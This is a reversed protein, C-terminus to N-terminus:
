TSAPPLALKRRVLGEYLRWPLLRHALIQARTGRGTPIRFPPARDTLAREVARVVVEVPEQSAVNEALLTSLRASIERYPGQGVRAGQQRAAAFGTATAGPQVLVVQVGFPLLEFRLAEGWGELAFKTANYAGSGPAGRAGAVSSLLVVRGRRARIAPLSARVTHMAGLLNVEVLARVQDPDLDEFCGSLGRGANAVVADLGGHRGVVRGVVAATAQADTVDLEEVEVGAAELGARGDAGRVTAVVTWGRAALALAAARGIGRSCGTILVVPM